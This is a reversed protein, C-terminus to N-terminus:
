PSTNSKRIAKRMKMGTAIRQITRRCRVPKVPIRCKAGSCINIAAPANHNRSKSTPMARIPPSTSPANNGTSERAPAVMHPRPAMSFEAAPNRMADPPYMNLAIM